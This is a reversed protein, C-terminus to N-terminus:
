AIRYATRCVRVRKKSSVFLWRSPVCRSFRTRISTTLNGTVIWPTYCVIRVVIIFVISLFFFLVRTILNNVLRSVTMRSVIHSFSTIEYSWLNWTARWHVTCYTGGNKENRVHVTHIGLHSDFDSVTCLENFLDRVDNEFIGYIDARFLYQRANRSLARM